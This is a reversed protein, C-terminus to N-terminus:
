RFIGNSGSFQMPTTLEAGQEFTFRGGLGHEAQSPTQINPAGDFTGTTPRAAIIAAGKM